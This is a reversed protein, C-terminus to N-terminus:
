WWPGGLSKAARVLELHGEHLGGMTPVFVGKLVGLGANETLRAVFEADYILRVALTQGLNAVFPPYECVHSSLVGGDIKVM